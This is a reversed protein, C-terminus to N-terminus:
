PTRSLGGALHMTDGNIFGAQRSALFHVASAIESIDGLRGAPCFEKWFEFSRDSADTESMGADFLGLALTNSTIGKRGYEKAIANSLAELGGKSACYGAQGAMGYMAISSIHIFRGYRNAVFHPLFQRCVYFAGTLNTDIVDRWDEDTMSFMMGTRTVGANCVVAQIDEFEDIAEDVVTEVDESIRVDLNWARLKAEGDIARAEALVAEANDAERYYTFGVNYGARVSDKVLQAGIGSSGGTILISERQETKTM